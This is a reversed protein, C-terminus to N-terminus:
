LTVEIIDSPPSEGVKNVAIVRLQIREGVPLNNLVCDSHLAFGKLRWRDDSPTMAEIRYSQAEGGSPAKKWDLELTGQGQSVIELGRPAGPAQQRIPKRGKWGILQLKADDYNAATEAYSLDIRTKEILSSLADQRSRAAAEADRRAAIERSPASTRASSTSPAVAGL